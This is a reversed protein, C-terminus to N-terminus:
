HLWGRWWTGRASREAAEAFACTAVRAPWPTPGTKGGAPCARSPCADASPATHDAHDGAQRGSSKKPRACQFPGSAFNTVPANNTKRRWSGGSKPSSVTRRHRPPRQHQSTTPRHDRRNMGRRRAARRWWREAWHLCPSRPRAHCNACRLDGTEQWGAEYWPERRRIPMGM